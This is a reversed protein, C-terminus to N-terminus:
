QLLFEGQQLRLLQDVKTVTITLTMTMSLIIPVISWAALLTNTLRACCLSLWVISSSLKESKFISRKSSIFLIPVSRCASSLAMFVFLKCFGRFAFHTKLGQNVGRRKNFLSLVMGYSFYMTKLTYSRFM